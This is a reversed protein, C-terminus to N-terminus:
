SQNPSLNWSEQDLVRFNLM